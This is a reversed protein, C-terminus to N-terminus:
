PPLTYVGHYVPKEQLEGTSLASGVCRSGLSSVRAHQAYHHLSHAGPGYAIHESQTLLVASPAQVPAKISRKNGRYAVASAKRVLARLCCVASCLSLADRASHLARRALVLLRPRVAAVGCTRHQIVGATHVCVHAIPLEAVGCSRKIRIGLPFNLINM